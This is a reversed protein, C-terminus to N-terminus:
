NFSTRWLIFLYIFIFIDEFAKSNIDAQKQTTNLGLLLNVNPPTILLLQQRGILKQVEKKRKM